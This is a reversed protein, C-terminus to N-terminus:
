TTKRVKSQMRAVSLWGTLFWEVGDADVQYCTECDTRTEPETRPWVADDPKADHRTHFCKIFSQYTAIAKLALTNLKKVQKWWVLTVAGSLAPDICHTHQILLRLLALGSETLSM